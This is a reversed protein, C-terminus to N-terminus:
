EKAVPVLFQFGTMWTLPLHFSGHRPPPLVRLIFLPPQLQRHAHCGRHHPVWHKPILLPAYFPFITIIISHVGPCHSSVWPNWGCEALSKGHDKVKRWPPNKFCVTGRVQLHDLPSLNNLTIQLLLPQHLKVNILFDPTGKQPGMSSGGM